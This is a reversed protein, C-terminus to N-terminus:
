AEPNQWPLGLEREWELQYHDTGYNSRLLVESAGTIAGAFRETQTIVQMDDRSSSTICASHTEYHKLLAITQWSLSPVCGLFFRGFLRFLFRFFPQTRVYNTLIGGYSWGGVGLRDPDSLGSDVAADVCGMVDAFDPVGWQGHLAASYAEGRGSSGRPNPLLVAYGAAAFLQAEFNFSWNHQSVPGGHLRLLTPLPLPAAAAADADNNSDEWGPPTVVFYTVSTGSDDASSATLKRVDSLAIGPCSSVCM